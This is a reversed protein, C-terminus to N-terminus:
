CIVHLLMISVWFNVIHVLIVITYKIRLNNMLYRNLFNVHYVNGSSQNLCLNNVDSDFKSWTGTINCQQIVTAEDFCLVNWFDINKPPMFILICNTLLNAKITVINLRVHLLLNKCKDPSARHIIVKWKNTKQEGHCYSCYM